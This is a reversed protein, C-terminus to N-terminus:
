KVAVVLGKRGAQGDALDIFDNSWFLAAGGIVILGLFVVRSRASLNKFHNM